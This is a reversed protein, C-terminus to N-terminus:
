IRISESLIKDLGCGTKVPQPNETKVEKVKEPVNM